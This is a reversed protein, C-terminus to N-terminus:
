THCGFGAVSSLKTQHLPTNLINWSDVVFRDVYFRVGSQIISLIGNGHTDVMELNNMLGVHVGGSLNLFVVCGTLPATGNAHNQLALPSNPIFTYGNTQQQWWALLDSALVHSPNSKSLDHFGTLNYADIPMFTSIYGSSYTGTSYDCNSIDPNLSDRTGKLFHPLSNVIKHGQVIVTGCSGAVGGAGKPVWFATNDDCGDPDEDDICYYPSDPSVPGGTILGHPTVPVFTTEPIYPEPTLTPIDFTGLKLTKDPTISQAYIINPFSFFLLFILPLFFYKM